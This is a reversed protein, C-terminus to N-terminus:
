PAAETVTYINIDITGLQVDACVGSAVALGRDGYWEGSSQSAALEVYAIINGTCNGASEVGHRLLVTAAAPTGADERVTWGLLRLNTTAAELTVDATKDDNPADVTAPRPSNVELGQTTYTADVRDSDSVEAPLSSRAKGGIKIPAGADISDHAVSGVAKVNGRTDTAIPTYDGDAALASNAENAVGWAAVGSDGSAHVADEAKGLNGAATGPTVSTGITAINGTSDSALTVRQVGTGSVGNGMSPAVGNIQAVNTDIAVGGVTGEIPTPGGNTASIADGAFPRAVITLTVTPGSGGTIAELTAYFSTGLVPLVDCTAKAIDANPIVRKHIRDISTNVLRWVGITVSTPSGTTSGSRYCVEIQRGPAVGIVTWASSSTPAADASAAASLARLNTWQALATAPLLLALALLLTKM